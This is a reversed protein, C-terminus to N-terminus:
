VMNLRSTVPGIWSCLDLLQGGSKLLEWKVGGLVSPEALATLFDFLVVLLVLLAIFSATIVVTIDVVISISLLTPFATGPLGRLLPLRVLRDVVVVLFLLFDKRVRSKLELHIFFGMPDPPMEEKVLRKRATHRQYVKPTTDM